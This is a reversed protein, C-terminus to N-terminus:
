KFLRPNSDVFKRLISGFLTYKKKTYHYFFGAVSVFLAGGADVILDWMTDVLGSKQMNFGFINDAAFEVIEWLAGIGLAFFFSFFSIWFPRSRIKQQCYLTYLIIFGIFGLSIGSAGHLLIDWWWFKLYYKHIEGLYLSLYVFVVIILELEIPLIIKYRRKFFFPTFTLILIISTTFLLTWRMNIIEFIIAAILSARLSFAILFQLKEYRSMDPTFFRM